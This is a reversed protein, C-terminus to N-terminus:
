VRRNLTKMRSERHIRNDSAVSAVERELTNRVQRVQILYGDFKSLAQTLNEESFNLLQAREQILKQAEERL